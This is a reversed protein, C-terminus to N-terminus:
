TKNQKQKTKQKNQKKNTQKNTKEQNSVTKKLRLFDFLRVFQVSVVPSYGMNLIPYPKGDPFHLGCVQFSM